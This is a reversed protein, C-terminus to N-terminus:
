NLQISHLPCLRATWRALDDAAWLHKSFGLCSVIRPAALSRIDGPQLQEAQADAPGAPRRRKQRHGLMRNEYAVEVYRDATHTYEDESASSAPNRKRFERDEPVQM